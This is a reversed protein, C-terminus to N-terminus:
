NILKTGFLSFRESLVLLREPPLCFFIFAFSVYAFTVVAGLMHGALSADWWAVVWNKGTLPKSVTLFSLGAGHLFGFLMFGWGAGHWLGALLFTILPPLAAALLFNKRFFARRKLSLSLPYFLYDRLFDSLTIHWRKWFEILNRALFPRNFNEPLGIGFFRGLGIAMQSYGSFDWYLYVSYMGAAGALRIEHSPM